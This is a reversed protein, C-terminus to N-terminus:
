RIAANFYRGLDDSAWQKFEDRTLDYTYQSGDKAFTAYATGNKWRLDEFCESGSTDAVITKSRKAM